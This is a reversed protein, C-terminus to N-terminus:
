QVAYLRRRKRKEWCASLWSQVRSERERERAGSREIGEVGGVKEKYTLCCVFSGSVTTVTVPHTCAPPRASLSLSFHPPQLSLFSVHHRRRVLVLRYDGRGQVPPSRRRRSRHTQDNLLEGTGEKCKTRSLSSSSQNFVLVLVSPRISLDSPSQQAHGLTHQTTISTAPVAAACGVSM